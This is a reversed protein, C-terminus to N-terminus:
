ENSIRFVEKILHLKPLERLVSLWYALFNKLDVTM